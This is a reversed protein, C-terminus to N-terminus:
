IKTPCPLSRDTTKAYGNIVKGKPTTVFACSYIAESSMKTLQCIMSATKRVCSPAFRENPKPVTFYGEVESMGKYMTEASKGSIFTRTGGTVLDKTAFVTDDTAYASLISVVLFIVAILIKM